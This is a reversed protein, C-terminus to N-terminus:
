FEAQPLLKSYYRSGSVSDVYSRRQNGLVPKVATMKPLTALVLVGAEAVM